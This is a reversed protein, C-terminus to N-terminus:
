QQNEGLVVTNGNLDTVTVQQNVWSITFPVYSNKVKIKITGGANGNPAFQVGAITQGQLSRFADSPSAQQQQQPEQQNPSQPQQPQGQEQQAMENEVLMKFYNYTDFKKM